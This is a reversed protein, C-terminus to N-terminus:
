VLISLFRILELQKINNILSERTLGVVLGYGLLQNSRVGAFSSIDKIREASLNSSFLLVGLALLYRLYKKIKM